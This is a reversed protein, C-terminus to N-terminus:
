KGALTRTFAILNAIDASSIDAVPKMKGKGDKMVKTMEADTLKQVDPSSLPPITVGLVKSMPASGMGDKGHCVSCKKMFTDKGAAANGGGGGFAVPAILVALLACIIGIRKM